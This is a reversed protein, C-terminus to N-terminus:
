SEMIEVGRGEDSGKYSHVPMFELPRVAVSPSRAASSQIIKASALSKAARPSSM